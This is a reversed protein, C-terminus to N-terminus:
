NVSKSSRLTIGKERLAGITSVHAKWHSNLNFKRLDAQINRASATSYNRIVISINVDPIDFSESFELVSQILEKNYELCFQNGDGHEQNWGRIVFTKIHPCMKIFAHVYICWNLNNEDQVTTICKLVKTYKEDMLFKNAVVVSDQKNLTHHFLQIPYAWKPNIPDQLSYNEKYHCILKRLLKLNRIEDGDQWLEDAFFDGHYGGYGGNLVELLIRMAKIFPTYIQGCHEARHDRISVICLTNFEQVFLREEENFDSLFRCDFLNGNYSTLNQPGTRLTLVMGNTSFSSAIESSTTVSTPCYFSVSIDDFMMASDIGHYFEVPKGGGWVHVAEQGFLQVTETIHRSWIAYESHRKYWDVLSEGDKRRFTSSFIGQLTDYHCYFMISLVHAISMNYEGNIINIYAGIPNNARTQKILECTMYLRAKRANNLWAKINITCLRNNVLEDKLNQYKSEIYQAPFWEGFEMAISPGTNEIGHIGPWYSFLKGFKYVPYKLCTSTGEAPDHKKEDDELTTNSLRTVFKSKKTRLRILDTKRTLLENIKKFRGDYYCGNLEVEMALAAIQESEAQTLRFTDFQHCLASHIKDLCKIVMMDEAEFCEYMLTNDQERCRNNRRIMFCQQIVCMGSLTQSVFRYLSELKDGGHYKLCHSYDNLITTITYQPCLGHHILDHFMWNHLAQNTIASENTRTERSILQSHWVQYAMLVWSIRRVCYCYQLEGACTCSTCRNSVGNVTLDHNIEMWQQQLKIWTPDKGINSKFKRLKEELKSPDSCRANKDYLTRNTVFLIHKPDNCYTKCHFCGSPDPTYLLTEIRTIFLSLSYSNRWDYDHFLYHENIDGKNNIDKHYISTEFKFEPPWNPYSGTVRMDLIYKRDHYPSNTPGEIIIKYHNSQKIVDVVHTRRLKALHLQLMKVRSMKPPEGGGHKNSIIPKAQQHKIIRKESFDKEEALKAPSIHATVTTTKFQLKIHNILTKETNGQNSEVYIALYQTKKFTGNWIHIDKIANEPTQQLKIKQGKALKKTSCDMSKNPKKQKIDDFNVNLNKLHFIHVKKPESVDMDNHDICKASSYIQISYIDIAQKFQLLIIFEEDADSVMFSKPNSKVIIDIPTTTSEDEDFNLIRVTEIFENVDYQM